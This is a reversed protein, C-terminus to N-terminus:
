RADDVNQATVLGDCGLAMSAPSLTTGTGTAFLKEGVTAPRKCHVFVADRVAVDASTGTWCATIGARINDKTPDVFGFQFMWEWIRAKGVSLNDVRTWDFGNQMIEEATVSRKWVIFNDPSTVNLLNAADQDSANAANAELWQGLVTLQSPSLQM